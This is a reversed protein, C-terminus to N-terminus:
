ETKVFSGKMTTYVPKLPLHINRMTTLKASYQLDVMNVIDLLTFDEGRDNICLASSAKLWDFM